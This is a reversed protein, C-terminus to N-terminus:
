AESAVQRELSNLLDNIMKAGYGGEEHIKLEERVGRVILGMLNGLPAPEIDEDACSLLGALLALPDIIFKNIGEAMEKRDDAIQTEAAM